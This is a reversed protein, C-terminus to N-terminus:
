RGVEREAWASVVRWPTVDRSARAVAMSTFFFTSWTADYVAAGGSEDVTVVVWGDAATGGWTRSRQCDVLAADTQSRGASQYWGATSATM